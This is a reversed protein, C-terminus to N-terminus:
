ALDVEVAIWCCLGSSIYKKEVSFWFGLLSCNLVSSKSFAISANGELFFFCWGPFFWKGSAVVMELTFYLM